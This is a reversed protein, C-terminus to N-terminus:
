HKGYNKNVPNSLEIAVQVSKLITSMVANSVKNWEAKRQIDDVRKQWQEATLPTQRKKMRFICYDGNLINEKNERGFYVFYVIRGGQISSLQAVINQGDGLSDTELTHNFRKM